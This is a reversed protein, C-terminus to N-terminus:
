KQKEADKFFRAKMYKKYFRDKFKPSHFEGFDEPTRSLIKDTVRVHKTDAEYRLGLRNLEGTSRHIKLMAIFKRDIANNNKDFVPEFMKYVDHDELALDEDENHEVYFPVEFLNDFVNWLINEKIQNKKGNM